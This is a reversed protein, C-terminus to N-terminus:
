RNPATAEALTVARASAHREANARRRTERAGTATPASAKVPATKEILERQAENLKRRYVGMEPSLKKLVVMKARTELFDMEVLQNLAKRVTERSMVVGALLLVSRVKGVRFWVSPMAAFLNIIQGGGKVKFVVRVRAVADRPVNATIYDGAGAGDPTMREGAYGDM